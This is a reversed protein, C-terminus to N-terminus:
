LKIVTANETLQLKIWLVHSLLKYDIIKNQTFMIWDNGKGVKIM